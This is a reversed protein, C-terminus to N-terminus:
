ALLLEEALSKAVPHPERGYQPLAKILNADAARSMRIISDQVERLSVNTNGIAVKFDILGADLKAQLFQEFELM